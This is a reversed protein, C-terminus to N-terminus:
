PTQNDLHLCCACSRLFNDCSMEQQPLCVADWSSSITNGSSVISLATISYNIAIEYNNTNFVALIYGREPDTGVTFAHATVNHYVVAPAQSDAADIRAGSCGCVVTLLALNANYAYVRPRALQGEAKLSTSASRSSGMPKM